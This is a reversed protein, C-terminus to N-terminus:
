GRGGCRRTAPVCCTTAVTKVSGALDGSLAADVLQGPTKGGDLGAGHVGDRARDTVAQVVRGGREMGDRQGASRAADRAQGAIGGM